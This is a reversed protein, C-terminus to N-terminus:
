SRGMKLTAGGTKEVMYHKILLFVVPSHELSSNNTADDGDDNSLERQDEEM